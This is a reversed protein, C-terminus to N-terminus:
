LSQEILAQPGKPNDCPKSSAVAQLGALWNAVLERLDNVDVKGNGTLDAWGCTGCDTERWHPAFIAFDEFNVCGNFNLDGTYSFEDAGMDMIPATGNGAGGRTNADQPVGSVYITFTHV